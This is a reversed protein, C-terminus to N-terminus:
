HVIDIQFNQWFEKYIKLKEKVNFFIFCSESLFFFIAKLIIHGRGDSVAILNIM